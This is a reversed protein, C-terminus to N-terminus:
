AVLSVLPMFSSFFVHIEIPYNVAQKQKKEKRSPFLILTIPTGKLAPQIKPRGWRILHYGVALSSPDPRSNKAETAWIHINQNKISWKRVDKEKLLRDALFGGLERQTKPPRKHAWPFSLDQRTCHRWLSLLVSHCSNEPPANIVDSIFPIPDNRRLKQTKGFNKVNNVRFHSWSSYSSKRWQFGMRHKPEMKSSDNFQVWKLPIWILLLCIISNQGQKGAATLGKPLHIGISKEASRALHFSLLLIAPLSYAGQQAMAGWSLTKTFIKHRCRQFNVHFGFIPKTSTEGKGFSYKWTGDKNEPTYTM